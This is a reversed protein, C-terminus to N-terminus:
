IKGRFHIGWEGWWIELGETVKKEPHKRAILFHFAGPFMLWSLWIMTDWSELLVLQKQKEEKCASSCLNYPLGSDKRLVPSASLFELDAPTALDTLYSEPTVLLRRRWWKYHACMCFLALWLGASIFASLFLLLTWLCQSSEQSRLGQNGECTRQAQSSKWSHSGCKREAWPSKFWVEKVPMWFFRSCNWSRLM